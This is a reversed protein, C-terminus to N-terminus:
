KEYSFKKLPIFGKSNITKLPLIKIKVYDSIIIYTIIESHRKTNIQSIIAETVNTVIDENEVIIQYTGELAGGRYEELVSNNLSPEGTVIDQSFLTFSITLLGILLAVKM